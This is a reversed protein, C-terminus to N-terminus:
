LEPLTPPGVAPRTELADFALRVATDLQPDRGAAYDMPTAPVEVDPDVGHNEVGWGPGQMWTAYTPQTVLTGDVLHYRSDIGITGGWTRMGVVPGLALAKIAANIVDGDSGTQEDAVAVIPGRPADQPYSEPRTGDRSIQWGVVRRALKEIVLQSLHGGRNERTDVVLADRRMELRLDRHLQAWGASLMDPLHLYGVRGSSLTHVHERRDAVWAHYRLPTDDLLPVVVVRRSAGGAAPGVTLEVPKGASGALLAAPGWTGVARGDVALIADGVRVGVGPARLPSRADPDSTEAPLIREIRWFGASDPALDAGLLGVRVRPDPSDRTESVYAHSTGLEGHVEWILDVLDDYSGLRPLLTRYRELQADWDVGGMDSRWFRDRMLRGAENYSQRWEAPPDITVRIRSLDIDVNDSSDDDAKHESPMARLSRGDHVVIRKGDGSVWFEDLADVLTETRRKEFDFRVLSSRPASDDSSALDHGLEGSLSRTMWLVGGKAPYLSWYRAAPVPFPVLREAIGEIDVSVRPTTEDDETKEDDDSETVPRGQLQPAFPSPTTASLPVLYPLSGTAFYMDFVHADYRPDFSRASLFVLYKGDTTFIPEHDDFRLPTVDVISLNTTDAMRIQRLPPPGPHSWALWGSDPSFQLGTPDGDDVKTVTRIEGTEVEVLLVRGDHTVVGVRRGDPTAVLEHVRGFQGTGVRRPAGGEVPVIELSEEGEVDTVWIVHGTTGLVQPLRARVGPEATLARAPGDQHTLWHVTGRVEVASARGTHDPAAEGLSWRASIPYQQRSVRPGGLKIPLLRPEADLSDLIWLDGASHYVVRAGDTSANRAYFEHKTHQRLDTGDPLCSYVNGVGSHDSLFAIRDGVWMPSVLSSDLESLIRSFEGSGATDVWFRGVTGGRYRKWWAPDDSDRSQLLVAGDERYTIDGVPGWPLQRPQGDLPIAYAWTRRFQAQSVSSIALVEGAPNWGLGATKVSGWYTLRRSEGGDVPAVHVEPEVDRTSTWAVHRGDPSIRPRTVPVQDGSVRWARGGDMPALWVDEEAVFTVLDGHVHPFRLYANNM